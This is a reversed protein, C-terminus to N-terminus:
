ITRNQQFLSDILKDVLPKVEKYIHKKEDCVDNETITFWFIIPLPTNLSNSISELVEISPKKHGKELQSLYSQTIGVQESFAGQNFGRKKRLLRISNGIDM